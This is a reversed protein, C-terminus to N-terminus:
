WATIFVNGAFNSSLILISRNKEPVPTKKATRERRREKLLMKQSFIGRRGGCQVM